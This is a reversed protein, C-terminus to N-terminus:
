FNNPEDPSMEVEAVVTFAASAGSGAGLTFPTTFEIMLINTTLGAVIVPTILWLPIKANLTTQNVTSLMKQRTLPVSYGQPTVAFIQMFVSSQNTLVQFDRLATVKFNKFTAVRVGASPNTFDQLLDTNTIFKQTQSTGSTISVTSSAAVELTQAFPLSYNSM